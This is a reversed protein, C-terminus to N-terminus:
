TAACVAPGAARAWVELLRGDWSSWREREPEGPRVGCAASAVPASTGGAAAADDPVLRETVTLRTGEGDPDLRYAVESAKDAEGEPWWRFVLRRGPRVSEVRGVRDPGEDPFFRAQAGPRLDWEVRAGFWGAVADPETLAEWLRDPPVPVVLRRELM